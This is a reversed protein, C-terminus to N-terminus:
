VGHGHYGDVRGRGDNSTHGLGQQIHQPQKLAHMTPVTRTEPRVHGRQTHQRQHIGVINRMYQAVVAIHKGVAVPPAKKQVMYKWTRQQRHIAVLVSQLAANHL